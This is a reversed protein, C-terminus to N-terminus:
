FEWGASFAVITDEDDFTPDTSSRTFRQVGADVYLNSSFYTRFNAGFSIVDDKVGDASSDKAFRAFGTIATDYGEGFLPVETEHVFGLGGEVRSSNVSGPKSDEHQLRLTFRLGTSQTAQWSAGADIALYGSDIGGDPRDIFGGEADLFISWDENVPKTYVVGAGFSLASDAGGSDEVIDFTLFPQVRTGLATGDIGISPGTRVLFRVSDDSPAEPFKLGFIRASTLWASSRAGGLDKRMNFALTGTAGFDGSDARYVLGAEASGSISFSAMRDTLASEYRAARTEEAASLQGRGKYIDLHYQAVDDVGLAFYAVALEFRAEQSTPEIDILRELTALAAEYDREEIALRAYRLMLDPDDPDNLLAAFVVDKESSQVSAPAISVALALLLAGVARTSRVRYM